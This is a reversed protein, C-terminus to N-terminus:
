GLVGQLQLGIDIALDKSDTSTAYITNNNTTTTTSTNRSSGLTFLDGLLNLPMTAIKIIGNIIGTFLEFGTKFADSSLLNVISDMGHEFTELLQPVADSSALVKTWALQIKMDFEARTLEYEQVAKNYQKLKDPNISDLGEKYTKMLSNFGERQARTWKSYNSLDLNLAESASVISQATTSDTGYRIMAGRVGEDVNISSQSVFRSSVDTAQQVIDKSKKIATTFLAVAITAVGIGKSFRNAMEVAHQTELIQNAVEAQKTAGGLKEFQKQASILEKQDGSIQARTIREQIDKFQEDLSYIGQQRNRDQLAAAKRKYTNFINDTFQKASQLPSKITRAITDSAQKWEEADFQPKIRVVYENLRDAM